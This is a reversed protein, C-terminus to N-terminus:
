NIKPIKYGGEKWPLNTFQNDYEEVGPIRTTLFENRLKEYYNKGMDIKKKDKQNIANKTYAIINDAKKNLLSSKKVNLVIEEVFESM